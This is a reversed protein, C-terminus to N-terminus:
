RLLSSPRSRTVVALYDKMSELKERFAERYKPSLPLFRVTSDPSLHVEGTSPDYAYPVGTPDAPTARLFGATVLERLDCPLRGRAASYKEV